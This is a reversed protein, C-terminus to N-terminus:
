RVFVCRAPLCGGLGGRPAHLWSFIHTRGVILGIYLVLAVWLFAAAAEALRIVLGSWHGKALKQTAAFVVLAQALGTWFRFNVHWAQWVRPARGAALVWGVVSG